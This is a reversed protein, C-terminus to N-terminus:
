VRRIYWYFILAQLFECAVVAACTGVLGYRQTFVWVVAITILLTVATAKLAVREQGRTVLDFSLRLVVIAPILSWALIGLAEAAPEYTPDYLLSIFPQAFVMLLLSACGAFLVLILFSTHYLNPSQSVSLNRSPSLPSQLTARRTMVPFLAGFLAYPILKLAEIPRVAASYWGTASDGVLVSLALTGSRQYVVALTVIAGLVAGTKLVPLVTRRQLTAWRFAIPPLFRYCLIAATSAGVIHSTLLLLSLALLGLDSSVILIVGAVLWLASVVQFLLYLEMREEGRMYSSYLTSFALPLLSLCALRFPLLTEATQNPLWGAGLWIILIAAMALALQIVLAATLTTALKDQQEVKGSAAAVQRILLTDMGFTTVVNAILVVSAIFAYQGLVAEGLYRAVLVTFLFALGQGLVRGLLLWLSNLTVRRGQTTRLVSKLTAM